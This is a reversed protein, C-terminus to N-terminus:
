VYYFGFFYSKGGNKLFEIFFVEDYRYLFSFVFFYLNMLVNFYGIFINKWVFVICKNEM